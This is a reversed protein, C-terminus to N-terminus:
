DISRITERIPRTISVRVKVLKWTESNSRLWFVGRIAVVLSVVDFTVDVKANM